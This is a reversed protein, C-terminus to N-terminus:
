RRVIEYARVSEVGLEDRFVGWVRGELLARPDFGPPVQVTAILTGDAEFALWQRSPMPRVEPTLGMMGLQGPYEGVWTEGSLQDSIIGSYAPFREPEPIAELIERLVAEDRPGRRALQADVWTDFDLLLANGALTRDRDEWRVIRELAGDPAYFRLEPTEATGVVLADGSVAGFTETGFPFPALGAAPSAHLEMGVFPGYEALRNGGADIRHSVMALRQVGSEVNDPGWVAVVFVVLSGSPLPLLHTFGAPVRTSGAAEPSQPAVDGLDVERAYEGGITFVSMRRRNPDWVALSDDGLSVVSGVSSFEGPGEGERGLSSQITGDARLVLARPPSDTGVVVSGDPLPHVATVQYLPTVPNAGGGIEVIPESSLSWDEVAEIRGPPNTVVQVGASDVVIATARTPQEECGCVIATLAAAALRCVEAEKV